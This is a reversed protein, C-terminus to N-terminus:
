PTDVLQDQVIIHRRGGKGAGQITFKPDKALHCKAHKRLNTAASWQRILYTLHLIDVLRRSSFM